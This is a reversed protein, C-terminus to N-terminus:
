ADGAVPVLTARGRRELVEFVIMGALMAAVFVVGETRGAGVLVLAPGPCVGAIGWGIGFVIAGAALRRDLTRSAPLDFM